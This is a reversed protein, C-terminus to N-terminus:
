VVQGGHIEIVDVDILNIIGDKVMGAIVPLMKMIKEETDVGCSFHPSHHNSWSSCSGGCDTTIRAACM